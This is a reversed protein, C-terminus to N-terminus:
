RVNSMKFVPLLLVEEDRGEQKGQKKNDAEKRVCSGVTHRVDMMSSSIQLWRPSKEPVIEHPFKLWTNVQKEEREKFESSM